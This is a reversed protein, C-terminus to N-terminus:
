MQFKTNQKLKVDFFLFMNIQNISNTDKTFFKLEVNLKDMTGDGDIDLQMATLSPSKLQNDTKLLYNEFYALNSYLYSTMTSTAAKYDM